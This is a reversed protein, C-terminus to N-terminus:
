TTSDGAGDHSPYLFQDGATPQIALVIRDDAAEVEAPM